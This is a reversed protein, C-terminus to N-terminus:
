YSLDKGAQVVVWKGAEQKMALLTTTVYGTPGDLGVLVIMQVGSKNVLAKTAKVSGPTMGKYDAIMQAALSRGEPALTAELGTQNGAVALQMMERAAKQAMAAASYSTSYWYTAGAVLVLAAVIAALWKVDLEEKQTPHL